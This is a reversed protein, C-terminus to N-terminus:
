PLVESLKLSVASLLPFISSFGFMSWGLTCFLVEPDSLLRLMLFYFSGASSVTQWLEPPTVHGQSVSQQLLGSILQDSVSQETFVQPPDVQCASSNLRQITRLRVSQLCAAWRQSVAALEAGRHATGRFLFSIFWDCGINVVDETGESTLPEALWM